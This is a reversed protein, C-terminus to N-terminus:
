KAVRTRKKSKKPTVRDVDVQEKLKSSEVAEAKTSPRNGVKRKGTNAVASAQVEEGSREKAPVRGQRKLNAAGLSDQEQAKVAERSRKAKKIVSKNKNEEEESQKLASTKRQPGKKPKETLVDKTATKAKRGSKRRQPGDDDAPDSANNIEEKKGGKKKMKTTDNEAEDQTEAADDIKKRSNKSSQSTCKQLAPVVASTRGGVTIFTIKHGEVEGPKKNWRYHFIWNKPFMESDANVDVSLNLVEQISKHIRSCEAESLTCAVQEPHIRAQYLVEDAVWNGIGALFSQDMLLAKIPGKKKLVNSAFTPELPLELYADPGLESIPPVSTPDNLLRVRALRRKDTFSIELGDDLKFFVKSFKSPWEEDDNVASRRYKTIEKGKINFAGTMGFQFSPWPRADLELWMNKGKRHAGLITRGVLSSELVSPAVGDIVISDDAVNAEVVRRGNCNEHVAKRAAEVEPLEPM